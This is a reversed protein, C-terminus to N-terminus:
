ESKFIWNVYVVSSHFLSLILQLSPWSSLSLEAIVM